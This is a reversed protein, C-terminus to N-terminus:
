AVKTVKIEAYTATESDWVLAEKMLRDVKTIREEMVNLVNRYTMEKTEGAEIRTELRSSVLRYRPKAKTRGEQMREVTCWNCLDTDTAKFNHRRVKEIRKDKAHRLRRMEDLLRLEKAGERIEKILAAKTREMVRTEKRAQRKTEM